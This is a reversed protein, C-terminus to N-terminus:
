PCKNEVPLALDQAHGLLFEPLQEGAITPHFVIGHIDPVGLQADHMVGQPVRAYSGSTPSPLHPKSTWDLDPGKRPCGAFILSLALLAAPRLSSLRKAASREAPNWGTLPREGECKAKM